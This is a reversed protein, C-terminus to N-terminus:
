EMIIVDFQFSVEQVYEMGSEVMDIDDAECYWKVSVLGGEKYYSELINFIELFRRSTSTNYYTMRFEVTLKQKPHQQIYTHLWEFVPQFFIVAHEHYSEGEIRLLGNVEDFFIAPIFDANTESSQFINANTLNLNSLM